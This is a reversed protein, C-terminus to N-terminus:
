SSKAKKRLFYKDPNHISNKKKKKQYINILQLRNLNNVNLLKTSNLNPKQICTHISGLPVVM